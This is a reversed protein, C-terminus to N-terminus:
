KDEYDLLFGNYPEESYNGCRGFVNAFCKCCLYATLNHGFIHQGPLEEEGVKHTAEEERCVRCMEGKCCPSIPHDTIRPSEHRDAIEQIHEASQQQLVCGDACKTDKCMTIMACYHPPEWHTGEMM